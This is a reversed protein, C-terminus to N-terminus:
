KGNKPKRKAKPPTKSLNVTAGVAQLDKTYKKIEEDNIPQEKKILGPISGNRWLPNGSPQMKNRAKSVREKAKLEREQCEERGFRKSNKEALQDLTTPEKECIVNPVSFLRQLMPRECDPCDILTDDKMKQFTDFEYGCERCQYDYIPM